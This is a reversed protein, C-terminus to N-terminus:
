LAHNSNFQKALGQTLKDLISSRDNRDLHVDLISFTDISDVAEGFAYALQDETEIVFGRGGGLVEPIKSYNWPQLNNFTGGLMLEETLYLGNNLVVVVPNLNYRITTSLEVGTMQFAGDGVIVLPRLDKDALQAGISGPVSFGLSAYYAPSLFKTKGHIVLDASAFLADGVDALIIMEDTLHSNLFQFLYKISIRRGNTPACSTTQAGEASIINAFASNSNAPLNPSLLVDGTSHRATITTSISDLLSKIFDRIGIGDYSRYGVSMREASVFITEKQEIRATFMGLTIDTLSAGLIILCDSNEVLQRAKEQGVAGGYIGIFLPHLESIVSKSLITTAVPIKAKEVLALLEDQLGFRHIEEGALIVPKVADNIMTVSDSTAERLINLDCQHFVTEIDTPDKFSGTLTAQVMDRPLEIYAPQKYYLVNSLVRNIEDVATQSNNLVTSACTIEDFIKRQTDFERVKHHLLPNKVQENTGPAGSIIVVPSKEAYAQATTNIVKFGGVGYTVCVVGLGRIRAYADAAFGAGQEDCMNVVSIKSKTLRDYFGLIYDGPVGFVHRIGRGYLNRILYDGVAYSIPMQGRNMILVSIILTVIQKIKSQEIQIYLVLDPCRSYSQKNQLLSALMHPFIGLANGACIIFTIENLKRVDNITIIIIKLWWLDVILIRKIECERM